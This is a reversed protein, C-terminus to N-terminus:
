VATDGLLYRNGRKCLYNLLNWNIISESQRRTPTQPYGAGNFLCSLFSNIFHPGQGSLM